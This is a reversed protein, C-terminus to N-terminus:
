VPPIAFVESDSATRALSSYSRAAFRWSGDVVTYHDRYLGFANTWRGTAADQRLEWMYLRGTATRTGSGAPAIVDVVSNLIAFEFFEFRSVARQVMTALAPAGSLEIPEGRRLDITIPADAVFLDDLEPWAQRTIVDGYRAQLRTIAIYDLADDLDSRHNSNTQDNPMPEM